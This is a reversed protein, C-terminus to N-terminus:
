QTIHVAQKHTYLLLGSLGFSYGLGSLKWGGFEAAPSLDSHSNIWVTGTELQNAIEQAKEIDKSWVSGGLGFSTNNAKKIVDQIDRFKIIPLAPGFQEDDVLSIGEKLNTVLTPAIFYGKEPLQKAQTIIKGGNQVADDIMAKVKNYQMKNQVPGFTTTVDTGNGVAQSDAIETLKQTLADYVNEHVYLRKLAACTQGMNLFASGFIKPAVEEVDVDDLVIGVDNGGLELVVSKLTNVSHSLISQGTRTSGTFTVKAVDTHESLTQGVAGKGLVISCVGKPLHRNIIEVLKITSLPTYESPKNVVTNKTKLAPFLHWIAILFPWNWPTISAVVGLPRNYVKIIKGGPDQITEVPVELSAIYEIWNAGGEVEFQALGLPKGQELTILQAIEDKALRIDNAIKSFASNITDDDVNKWTKFAEEAAAITQNVQEVTTSPIEAIIQENAPNLVSFTEGLGSVSEGNLIMNINM